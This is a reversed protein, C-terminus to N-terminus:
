TGPFRSTLPTTAQVLNARVAKFFAAMDKIPPEGEALQEGLHLGLMRYSEFQAESFWQDSTPEHAFERSARSYSYVDYPLPKGKALLTPKIYLIEGPPTDPDVDHYGIQGLACFLGPGETSDRALIRIREEFRISIGFDIRVKRIMNGLDEFEHRPDQGADCAVIYRCRRLVMEYVGLNDFHGGDSLNVYPHRADTLSLLDSFLPKWAHRPGSHRFVSNGAHNPNGLWCGLRVNFLTMLFAVVASSHYGASPNAAAGSITMATGLSIGGPAGYLYSRRYKEHWSGCYLPTM